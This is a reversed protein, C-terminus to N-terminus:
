DDRKCMGVDGGNCGDCLSLHQDVETTKIDANKVAGVFYEAFETMDPFRFVDLTDNLVTMIGEEDITYKTQKIVHGAYNEFVKMYDSYNDLIVSSIPLVTNEPIAKRLSLINHMLFRHIRGNGDEFPHIIVFGFSIAAAHILPPVSGEKMIDHAKFLGLMLYELDEPKPCINHVAIKNPSVTRGLYVQKTRYGNNRFEPDVIHNQIEVLGWKNCHDIKGSSMLLEAFYEKTNKDPTLGELKFSAEVEEEYIGSFTINEPIKGMIGATKRIVPCFDSDGLLNNLIRYRELKIPKSTTHFIEPDLTEVYDGETVDPILLKKQMIFEYFFWLRSADKKDPIEKILDIFGADDYKKFICLLDKFVNGNAQNLVNLINSCM